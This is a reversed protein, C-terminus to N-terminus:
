MEENMKRISISMPYYLNDWQKPYVRKYIYSYIDSDVQIELRQRLLSALSHVVHNKNIKHKKM